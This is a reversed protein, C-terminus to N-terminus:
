FLPFYSGSTVNRVQPEDSKLAQEAVEFSNFPLCEPRFFSIIPALLICHSTRFLKCKLPRLLHILVAPLKSNLIIYKRISFQVRFIIPDFQCCQNWPVDRLLPIRRLKHVVTMRGMGTPHREARQQDLPPQLAAVYPQHLVNTFIWIQLIENSHLFVATGKQPM